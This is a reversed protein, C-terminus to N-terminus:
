ARALTIFYSGVLIPIIGVLQRLSPVEGLAFYAFTLTFIPIFSIMASLKTISILNLSEIWLIKSLTLVLIGNLLIFVWVSQLNEISPVGEFLVAATLLFPLAVINRFTLITKSSVHQRARRQYVNAIPSILAACLILLDGWNLTFNTPFLIIIAGIGMLFAGITQQVGMAEKGIVNFFLYSFFLQLTIIVSMNGATTYKLGIVVMVFLSTIYFTTLLLDKYAAKNAFESWKGQYTILIGFAITAVLISLSYAWLSGIAHLIFLTFIPFWSELLSLMIAFLEGKRENTM